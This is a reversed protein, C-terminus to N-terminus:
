VAGKWAMLSCGPVRGGEGLMEVGEVEVQESAGEDGDM